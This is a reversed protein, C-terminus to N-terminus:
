LRELPWLGTVTRRLSCVVAHGDKVDVSCGFFAARAPTPASPANSVAIDHAQTLSFPGAAGSLGGASAAPPPIGTWTPPSSSPM